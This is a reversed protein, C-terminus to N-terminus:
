TKRNNKRFWKKFWYNTYKDRWHCYHNLMKQNNYGPWHAGLADLETLQNIIEPQTFHNAGYHMALIYQRLHHKAEDRGERKWSGANLNDIFDSLLQNPTCGWCKCLMLIGQPIHFRFEQTAAYDETQWKLNPKPLKKPLSKTDKSIRM